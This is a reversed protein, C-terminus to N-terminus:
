NFKSNKLLYETDSTSSFTGIIVLTSDCSSETSCASGSGTEVEGTVNRHCEIVNSYLIAIDDVYIM